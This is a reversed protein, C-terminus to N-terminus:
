VIMELNILTITIVHMIKLLALFKALKKMVKFITKKKLKYQMIWFHAEQLEKNKISKIKHILRINNMKISM